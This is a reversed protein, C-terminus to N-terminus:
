YNVAFSHTQTGAIGTQGANTEFVYYPKGDLTVPPSTVPSESPNQNFKSYRVAAYGRALQEGKIRDIQRQGSTVSSVNTGIVGIVLIMMIVSMMLVTVLVIGSNNMKKTFMANRM